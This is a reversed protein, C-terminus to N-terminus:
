SLEYMQIFYRNLFIIRLIVGKRGIHEMGGVLM